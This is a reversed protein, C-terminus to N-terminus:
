KIQNLAMFLLDWKAPAHDKEQIMQTIEQYSHNLHFEKLYDQIQPSYINDVFESVNQPSTFGLYAKFYDAYVSYSPDHYIIAPKKALFSMYSERRYINAIDNECIIEFHNDEPPIFHNYEKVVKPNPDIVKLQYNQDHYILLNKIIEDIHLGCGLGLVLIHPNKKLIEKKNQIFEKAEEVPNYLSHMHMGNIKPIRHGSKAELFEVSYQDPNFIM